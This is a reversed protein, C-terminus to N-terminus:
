AAVVVRAPVATTQAVGMSGLCMPSWTTLACALAISEAGSHCCCVRSPPLEESEHFLWKMMSETNEIRRQRTPPALSRQETKVNLSEVHGALNIDDRPRNTRSIRPSHRFPSSDSAIIPESQSGSDSSRGEDGSEESDTTAASSNLLQLTDLRGACVGLGRLRSLEVLDEQIRRFLVLVTVTSFLLTREHLCLHPASGFSM